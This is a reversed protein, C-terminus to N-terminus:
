KEAQQKRNRKRNEKKTFNIDLSRMKGHCGTEHQTILFQLDEEITIIKLANSHAIDFLNKFISKFDAEKKKNLKLKDVQM